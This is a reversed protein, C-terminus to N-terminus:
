KEESKIDATKYVNYGEYYYGADVGQMYVERDNIKDTLDGNSVNYRFLWKEDVTQFPTM